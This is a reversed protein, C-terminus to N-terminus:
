EFDIESMECWERLEERQVKQEFDYWDQLKGIDVLLAKFRSFAGRREFIDYIKNAHDKVEASAFRFALERGHTLESPDPLAFYIDNEFLDEPNDENMEEDDDFVFFTEGTERNIHMSHSFPDGMLTEEFASFIQDFSLKM